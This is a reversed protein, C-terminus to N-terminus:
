PRRGAADGPRNRRSVVLGHILAGGLVFLVGAILWPWPNLQDDRGARNLFAVYLMPLGVGSLAGAAAARSEPRKRLWLSGILAVPLVFIGISLLGLVGLSYAAGVIM